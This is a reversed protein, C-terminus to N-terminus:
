ARGAESSWIISWVSPRTSSRNSRSERVTWRQFSFADCGFGCGLRSLPSADHGVDVGGVAVDLLNRDGHERAKEARALGRQQVVDQALLVAALDRHDLVLEALDADVAAEHEFRGLFDVLHGVAAHAADARHALIEHPDHPHEDRAGVPEIVDDDLRAAEGIRIRDRLGEEEVIRDRLLDREVRDDRHDVRLMDARVEVIQHEVATVVLRDVLDDARVADHDVLDVEDVCRVDIRQGRPQALQVRRRLDDRRAVRLDIEIADEADARVFERLDEDLAVPQLGIRRMRVFVRALVVVVRVFGVCVAVIVIMVFVVGAHRRDADFDIRVDIEVRELRPEAFQAAGIGRVQEPHFADQGHLAARLAVHQLAHVAHDLQAGRLRPHSGREDRMTKM